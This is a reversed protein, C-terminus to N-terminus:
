IEFQVRTPAAAHAGFRQFFGVHEPHVQYAKWEDVSTFDATMAFDYNGDALGLDPGWAMATVHPITELMRAFGANVEEIVSPDIGPKWTFLVVHRIM